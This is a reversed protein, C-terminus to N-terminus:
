HHHDDKDEHRDEHGHDHEDEHGHDHSDEEKPKPALDWSKSIAIQFLGPYNFAPADTLRLVRAKLNAELKWETGFEWTAGAGVLVDTRANFGELAYAGHWIEASEHAIDAAINPTLKLSTIPYGVRIGGFIRSPARFGDKNEYVSFLGLASASLQVPGAPYSLGFGVIPLFTGTGMMIHEHWKGQAALAYPDPETRGLPFSVGIRSATQLKGFAAGARFILWPDGPGVMTRDHHHIDNPVLKPSGDLESYTPTTDVVRVVFRGEIAFSESLGYSVDATIDSLWLAVHHHYPVPPPSNNCAPGLDPCEAL